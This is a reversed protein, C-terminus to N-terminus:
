WLHIKFLKLVANLLSLGMEVFPIVIIIILANSWFNLSISLDSNATFVLLELTFIGIFILHYMANQILRGYFGHDIKHFLKYFFHGISFGILYISLLFLSFQTTGNGLFFIGIHALTLIIVAPIIAALVTMFGFNSRYRKFSQKLKQQNLEAMVEQGYHRKAIGIGAEKRKQLLAKAVAVANADMEAPHNIIFQLEEDSKDVLKREYFEKM